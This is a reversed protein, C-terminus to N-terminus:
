RCVPPCSLETWDSPETETVHRHLVSGPQCSQEHLSFRSTWSKPFRADGRPWEGRRAGFIRGRRRWLRGGGGRRWGGDWRPQHEAHCCWHAGASPPFLSGLFSQLLWDSRLQSVDLVCLPSGTWKKDESELVAGLCCNLVSFFCDSVKSPHLERLPTMVRFALLQTLWIIAINSYILTILSWLPSRRM